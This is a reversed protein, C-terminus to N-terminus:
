GTDWGNCAPGESKGCEKVWQAMLAGQPEGATAPLGNPKGQEAHIESRPPGKRKAPPAKDM